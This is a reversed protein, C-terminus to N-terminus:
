CLKTYEEIVDAKGFGPIGSNKLSLKVFDLAKLKELVIDNNAKFFIWQQKRDCQEKSFAKFTYDLYGQRPVAFDWIMDFYKEAEPTRNYQYLKFDSHWTRPKELLRLNTTDNNLTWIQFCCRLNYEKNSLTFSNIPLLMDFVLKAQKNIKSQASWKRFQIPLIFGVIESCKLSM